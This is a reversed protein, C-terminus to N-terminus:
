DDVSVISEKDYNSLLWEHETIKEIDIREEEEFTFMALLLEKASLSLSDNFRYVFVFFRTNSPYTSLKWVGM